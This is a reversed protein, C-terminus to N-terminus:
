VQAESGKPLMPRASTSPSTAAPQHKRRPPSAWAHSPPNKMSGPLTMGSAAYLSMVLRNTGEAARNTGEAARNTGEAARNTGEAARNTGEAARQGYAQSPRVFRGVATRGEEETERMERRTGLLYSKLFGAWNSDRAFELAAYDELTRLEFPSASWPFYVSLGRSHQFEAGCYATRKEVTADIAKMVADCAAPIKEFAKGDAMANKARDVAQKLENCFDWLDTHQEFKYSQARWHAVILMDRVLPDLRGGEATLTGTLEKLRLGLAELKSLDCATLDLSIGAAIYDRYYAITDQVTAEALERPVLARRRKVRLQKLKGLLYAYPWGANPVYGESGVLYGVYGAVQYCVEAMGMLCSDMGLVHLLCRGNGEVGLVDDALAAKLSEDKLKDDGNQALDFVRKLQPITFSGARGQRANDDTLFDGSAGSGHGALILMRYTSPYQEVSWRIFRALARPDSSDEEDKEATWVLHDQIPLLARLPQDKVVPLAGRKTPIAYRSTRFGPAWPDYQITVAVKRPVGMTKIDHLARIMQESLNNDGSLYVMITWEFEREKSM